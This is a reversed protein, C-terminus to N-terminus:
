VEDIGFAVWSAREKRTHLRRAHQLATRLSGSGVGQCNEQVRVYAGVVCLSGFGWFYNPHCAPSYQWSKLVDGVFTTQCGVNVPTRASRFKYDPPDLFPASPYFSKGPCTPLLYSPWFRYLWTLTVRVAHKWCRTLLTSICINNVCM